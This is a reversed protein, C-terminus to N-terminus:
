RQWSTEGKKFLLDCSRVATSFFFKRLQQQDDCNIKRPAVLECETENEGYIISSILQSTLFNQEIFWKWTPAKQLRATGLSAKKRSSFFFLLFFCLMVREPPDILNVEGRSSSTAHLLPQPQHQHATSQNSEINIHPVKIPNATCRHPWRPTRSKNSHLQLSKCSDEKLFFSFAGMKGGKVGVRENM